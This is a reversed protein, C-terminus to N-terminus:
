RGRMRRDWEGKWIGGFERGAHVIANEYFRWYRRNYRTETAFTGLRELGKGNRRYVGVRGGRTRTFTQASSLASRRRARPMNGYRNTRQAKAPIFIARGRPRRVRQGTGTLRHLYEAQRDKVFVGSELRTTSARYSVMSRLTFPTPRDLDRPLLQEQNEKSQVALTTLTDAAIRSQVAPLQRYFSEVDKANHRVTLTLSM